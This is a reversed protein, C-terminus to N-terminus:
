VVKMGPRYLCPRVPEDRKERTPAAVRRARVYDELDQEDIRVMRPGVRYAPLQGRAIIGELTRVGIQLREAAQQKTIYSM